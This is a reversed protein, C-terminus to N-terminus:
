RGLQPIVSACQEIQGKHTVKPLCPTHWPAPPDGLVVLLALQNEGDVTHTRLILRPHGKGASGDRQGAGQKKLRSGSQIALVRM